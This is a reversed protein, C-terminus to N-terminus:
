FNTNLIDSFSIVAFDHLPAGLMGASFNAATVGPIVEVEVGSYKGIIQFLVNGMGFVGPDGSSVLLLM